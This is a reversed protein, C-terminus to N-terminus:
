VRRGWPGRTLLGNPKAEHAISGYGKRAVPRILNNIIRYISQLFHIFLTITGYRVTDYPNLRGLSVGRCFSQLLIWRVWEGAGGSSVFDGRKSSGPDPLPCHNRSKPAKDTWNTVTWYTVVIASLWLALFFQRHVISLASFNIDGWNKASTLKSLLYPKRNCM